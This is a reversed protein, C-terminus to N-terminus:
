LRFDDSAAMMGAGPRRQMKQPTMRGSHSHSLSILAAPRCRRRAAFDYPMLELCPAARSQRAFHRGAIVAMSFADPTTDPFEDSWRASRM